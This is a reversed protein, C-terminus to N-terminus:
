LPGNWIWLDLDKKMHITGLTEWVKNLLYDSIIPVEQIIGALYYM